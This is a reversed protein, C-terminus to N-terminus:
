PGSIYVLRLVRFNFYVFILYVHLLYVRSISSVHKRIREQISSLQADRKRSAIELKLEIREKLECRCQEGYSRV